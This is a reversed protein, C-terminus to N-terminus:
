SGYLLLSAPTEPTSKRIKRWVAPVIVNLANRPNCRL